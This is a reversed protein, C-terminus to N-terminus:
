TGTYSPNLFLTVAPFFVASNIGSFDISMNSLKSGNQTFICPIIGNMRPVYTELKLINKYVIYSAIENNFVIKKQLKIELIYHSYKM